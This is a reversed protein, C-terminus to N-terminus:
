SVPSLAQPKTNNCLGASTLTKETPNRILFALAILLLRSQLCVRLKNRQVFSRKSYISAESHIECGGDQQQLTNIRLQFYIGDYYVHQM